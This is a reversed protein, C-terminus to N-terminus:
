CLNFNPFAGFPFDDIGLEGISGGAHVIQKDSLVLVVLNFQVPDAELLAQWSAEAPVINGPAVAVPAPFATASCSTSNKVISPPSAPDAERCPALQCKMLM